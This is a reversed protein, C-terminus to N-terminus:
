ERELGLSVRNMCYRMGGAAIPGDNFSRESKM